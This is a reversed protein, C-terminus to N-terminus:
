ISGYSNVARVDLTPLDPSSKQTYHFFRRGLHAGGANKSSNSSTFLAFVFGNFAPFVSLKESRLVRAASGPTGRSHAVFGGDASVESRAAL